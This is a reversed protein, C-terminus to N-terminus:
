EECDGCQMEITIPENCGPCILGDAADLMDEDFFIINGCHRCTLELFDNADFGEEDDDEDWAEEDDDNWDDDNYNWYAGFDDDELDEIAEWIDEVQDEVDELGEQVDELEDAIERLADLIGRLMKATKEDQLDLGDFLGELYSIKDSVKSM